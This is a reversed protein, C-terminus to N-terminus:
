LSWKQKAVDRLARELTAYIADWLAGFKWNFRSHGITYIAHIELSGHEELISRVERVLQYRDGTFHKPWGYQDSEVKYQGYLGCPM